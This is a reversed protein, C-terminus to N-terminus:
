NWARTSPSPSFPASSLGQWNRPGTPRRLRLTPEGGKLSKIVELNVRADGPVVALVFKTVKKGIKIMAIICKAAQAVPHGRMPSVIETRGEPPHDILRYQAGNAELLAILRQYTDSQTM